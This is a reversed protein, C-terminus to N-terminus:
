SLQVLKAKELDQLFKLVREPDIEGYEASVSKAIHYVSRKGDIFNLAEARKKDFDQDKERAEEYWDLEKESLTKKLVSYDLTGKFLRKPIVRLEEGPKAQEPEVPLIFGSSKSIFSLTERIRAIERDALSKVDRCYGDLSVVLEPSEGLKTVSKVAEQERWALHEIKNMYHSATKELEKALSESKDKIEPDHKKKFLEEIAERKAEEIRILSRSVTESALQFATEGTANALTLVVNTVIWGIRKLSDESVKDITDM